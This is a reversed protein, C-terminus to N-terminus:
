RPTMKPFVPLQKGGEHQDITQLMQNLFRQNSASDNPNRAQDLVELQRTVPAYDLGTIDQRQKIWATTVSM